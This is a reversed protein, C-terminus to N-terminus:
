KPRPAAGAAPKGPAGAEILRVIDNITAFNEFLIEDPQIKVPYREEIFSILKFLGLSDVLGGEIIPFDPTVPAEPPSSAVENVIYETLAAILESKDPM